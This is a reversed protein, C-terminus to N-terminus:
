CLEASDDPRPKPTMQGPTCLPRADADEPLDTTGNLIVVHGLTSSHQLARRVTSFGKPLPDDLPGCTSCQAEIILRPKAGSGPSPKHVLELGAFAARASELSRSLNRGNDTDWYLEVMREVCEFLNALCRQQQVSLKM